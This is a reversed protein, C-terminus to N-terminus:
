NNIIATYYNINEKVITNIEFQQLVSQRAKVGIEIAKEPNQLVLLIKQAIDRPSHPNCLLGTLGNTIGILIM